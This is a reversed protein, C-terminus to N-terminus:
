VPDIHHLIASHNGVELPRIGVDGPQMLQHDTSAQLSLVIAFRQLLGEPLFHHQFDVPEREVVGVLVDTELEMGPFDEANGTDDPRAALFQRAGKRAESRM